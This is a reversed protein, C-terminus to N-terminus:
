FDRLWTERWGAFPERKICMVSTARELELMIRRLGESEPPLM